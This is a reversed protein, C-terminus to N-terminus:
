FFYQLDFLARKNNKEQDDRRETFFAAKLRLSNNIGYAFWATTGRMRTPFWWDDDNFAAVLAERQIRQM